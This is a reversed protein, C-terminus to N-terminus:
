LLLKAMDEETADVPVIVRRDDINSQQSPHELQLRLKEVTAPLSVVTIDNVEFDIVDNESTLRQHGGYHPLIIRPEIDKDTSNTRTHLPSSSELLSSVLQTDSKDKAWNDNVPTDNSNTDEEDDVVEFMMDDEDAQNLRILEDEDVPQLDKETYHIAQRRKAIDVLISEMVWPFSLYAGTVSTDRLREQPHYTVYYWAAAKQEAQQGHHLDKYADPGTKQKGVDAEFKQRWLAKVGAVTEALEKHLEYTNKRNRTVTWQMVFNSVLESETKIGYQNMVALLDRNYDQREERAKAIFREMGSIRLRPDYLTDALLDSEYRDFDDNNIMRYMVGLVKESKYMPKDTKNMFDPFDRVKLGQDMTAPHGSKPFDVADSHLEALRKCAGDMAGDSSRDATALHANAIQGLIDNNIYNVFFKMIDGREVSDKTLPSPPKYDMPNYENTPILDKDWIITFDDGDLDGGSCMSPIDRNGVTPFVLVDKLHRLAPCDVATVLRIDGPHFCPNRYVICQAQVVQNKVIGGTLQLFVENEKLVGLEDPVGLLFAGRPVHIKAKEKLEKLMKCRFMRVLNMIYPDRRDLFGAGIINAMSQGIGFEDTNSLIMKVADESDTLMKSLDRVLRELMNLFTSDPVGLASLLTIAQRNLFASIHSSVRVVELMTHDSTFKIQSPRLEVKYGKLSDKVMLVGKAGGLRFQFASPVVGLTSAARRVVEGALEPSINGCGDTFTYGHHEIDKINTVQNPELEIIARTSSFCQGIRAAHKAVVKIDSFDGMWALIMEANMRDLHAGETFPAFFWCGHERLQSSSFGLFEYHVAGIKIGSKLTNYVRGYIDDNTNKDRAAGIRIMSDDTFQVRIFRDSYNRFHRVVRNTTELTRPIVYTITPTVVAKRLLACHHPITRPLTLNMRHKSWIEHFARKPNWIREKKNYMMDLIGCVIDRDLKGLLDYFEGDLNRVHLVNTAINAELLYLIDYHMMSSRQHHNIPKPLNKHSVVQIAHSSINGRPILNFEAMSTLMSKLFHQRRKNFALRYVTWSGINIYDDPLSLGVPESFPIDTPNATKALLCLRSVDLRSVYRSNNSSGHNPTLPSKWFRAPYKLAMTMYTTEGNVEVVIDNVIDKFMFEMHCNGDLHQFYIRIRHENFDVRISVDQTFMFEEVFKHEELYSGLSLSQAYVKIKHRQDTENIVAYEM